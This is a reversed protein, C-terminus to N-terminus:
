KVETLRKDRQEDCSSEGQKYQGQNLAIWICISCIIVFVNSLTARLM